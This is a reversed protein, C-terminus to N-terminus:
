SGAGKTQLEKQMAHLCDRYSEVEDGLEEVLDNTFSPGPNTDSLRKGYNPGVHQTILAAARAKWKTVREKGAVTNLDQSAQSFIANLEKIQQELIDLAPKAGDSM